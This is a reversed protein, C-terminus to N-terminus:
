IKGRSSPREGRDPFYHSAVASVSQNVKRIKELIASREEEMREAIAPEMNGIRCGVARLEMSADFVPRLEEPLSEREGFSRIAQHIQEDDEQIQELRQYKCDIEARIKERRLVFHEMKGGECTMLEATAEEFALFDLKIKEMLLTIEAAKRRMRERVSDM